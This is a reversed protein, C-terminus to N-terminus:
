SMHRREEAAVESAKEGVVIRVLGQVEGSAEKDGAPEVVSAM